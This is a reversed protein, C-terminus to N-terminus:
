LIRRDGMRDHDITTLCERNLVFDKIAQFARQHVRRWGPWAAQSEKTTLPTLVSRYQSLRPLFAALYQVLGLFRQVDKAVRPVPWDRIREVKRVDPEIGRHSIRHGLFDLETTFLQSKKTSCYLHADQLAQLITQVNDRHEDVSNSWIVIDDLCIHCIRGIYKRLAQYRSLLQVGM